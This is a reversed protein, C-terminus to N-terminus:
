PIEQQEPENTDSTARRRKESV